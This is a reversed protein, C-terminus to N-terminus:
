CTEYFFCLKSKTKPYFMDFLHEKDEGYKINRYVKLYEPIEIKNKQLNKRNIEERFLWFAEYIKELM